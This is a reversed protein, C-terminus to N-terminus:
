GIEGAQTFVGLCNEIGPGVMGRTDYCLFRDDGSFNHTSDLDHNKASCTLQREEGDVAPASLMAPCLLVVCLRKM